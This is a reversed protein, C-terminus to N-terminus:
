AYPMLKAIRRADGKSVPLKGSIDRLTEGRKKRRFNNIGIKRRMIKGSGSIYIRGKAGAHTKMKYKKLKGM